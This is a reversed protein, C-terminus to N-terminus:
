NNIRFSAQVICLGVFQYSKALELCLSYTIRAEKGDYRDGERFCGVLRQQPDIFNQFHMTQICDLGTSHERHTAAVESHYVPLISRTFVALATGQARSTFAVRDGAASSYGSNM